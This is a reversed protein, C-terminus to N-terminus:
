SLHEGFFALVRQWSDAAADANYAKGQDNFFSHRTSPYIKIDHAVGYDDLAADLKKGSSATFDQGPYSGVVPCMRRVAELPRPNTGYFPAVARLRDDTCAWAIALTGGLCFGIAGVRRADVDPLASLFSLAARLERVSANDLPRLLQQSMMRAMCLTRNHNGFLDVALAVYGARAFRRAIDMINENLGYAEHIVVVGPFPGEGTPRALYGPQPTEGLPYEISETSIEFSPASM